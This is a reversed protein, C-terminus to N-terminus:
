VKMAREIAFSSRKRKYKAYAESHLFRSFTDQLNSRVEVELEDFLTDLDVEGNAAIKQMKEALSAKCAQSANVLLLSNKDHIYATYVHKALNLKEERDKIDKYKCLDDYAKSNEVSFEAECYKFLALRGEESSWLKQLQDARSLTHDQNGQLKNFVWRKIIIIICMGGSFLLM